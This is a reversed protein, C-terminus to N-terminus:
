QGYSRITVGLLKLLQRHLPRLETVYTELTEGAQQVEHRQISEFVDLVRRATPARCARGEPYLPLSEQEAAAVM